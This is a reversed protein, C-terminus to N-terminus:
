AWELLLTPTQQYYNSKSIQRMHRIRHSASNMEGLETKVAELRDALENRNSARVAEAAEFRRQFNQRKALPISIKKSLDGIVVLLDEQQRLLELLNEPENNRIFFVESLLNNEYTKLLLELRKDDASLTAKKILM